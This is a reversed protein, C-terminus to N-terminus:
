FALFFSHLHYMIVVGVRYHSFVTIFCPRSQLGEPMPLILQAPPCTETEEQRQQAVYSRVQASTRPFTGRCASLLWFRQYYRRLLCFACRQEDQPTLDTGQTTVGTVPLM